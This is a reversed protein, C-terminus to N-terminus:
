DLYSGQWLMPSKNDVKFKKLLAFLTHKCQRNKVSSCSCSVELGIQIQKILLIFINNKEYNNM